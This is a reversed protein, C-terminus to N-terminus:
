LARLREIHRKQQKEDQKVHVSVLVREGGPKYYIRGLRESGSIGTALRSVAFWGPIGELDKGVMQGADIGALARMISAPADLNAIVEVANLVFELRGFASPLFEAVGGRRPRVATAARLRESELAELETTRDVLADVHDALNDGRRRQKDAEQEADRARELLIANEAMALERLEEADALGRVMEAIDPGSGLSERMSTLQLQLNAWRKDALALNERYGRESAEASDLVEHLRTVEREAAEARRSLAYLQDLLAEIRAETEALRVLSPDAAATTRGAPPLPAMVADVLSLAEDRSGKFRLRAFWDYFNGNDAARHSVDWRQVGLNASEFAAVLRSAVKESANFVVHHGFQNSELYWDLDFPASVGDPIDSAPAYPVDTGAFLFRNCDAIEWNPGGLDIVDNEHLPYVSGAYAVGAYGNPTLRVPRRVGNEVEIGNDLVTVAAKASAM